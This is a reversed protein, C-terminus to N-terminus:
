FPLQTIGFIKKANQIGKSEKKTFFSADMFAKKKEKEKTTKSVTISLHIHGTISENKGREQLPFWSSLTSDEGDKRLIMGINVSFQGM